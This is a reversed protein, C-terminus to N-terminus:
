VPNANSNVCVAEAFLECEKAGIFEKRLRDKDFVSDGIYISTVTMKNQTLTGTKDTCITTAGGM